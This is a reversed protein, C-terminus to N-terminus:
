RDIVPTPVGFSSAGTGALRLSAACRLPLAMPSLRAIGCDLSMRNDSVQRADTHCLWLALFEAARAM